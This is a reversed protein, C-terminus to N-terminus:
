PIVEDCFTALHICDNNEIVELKALGGNCPGGMCAGTEPHHLAGHTACILHRGDADFFRGPAWDLEVGRHTCRNVYAHVHGRYRVAFAPFTGDDRRVTFRVGDAGDVLATSACILQRAQDM